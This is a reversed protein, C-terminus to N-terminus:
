EELRKLCTNAQEVTIDGKEVLNCIAIEWMSNNPIIIKAKM